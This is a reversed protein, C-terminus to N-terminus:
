LMSWDQTTEFDFAWFLVARRYVESGPKAAVLREEANAVYQLACRQCRGRWEYEYM